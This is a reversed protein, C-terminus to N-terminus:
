DTSEWGRCRGAAVTTIGGGRAGIADCHTLVKLQLRTILVFFPPKSAAKKDNEELRTLNSLYEYTDTKGLAAHCRRSWFLVYRCGLEHARTRLM